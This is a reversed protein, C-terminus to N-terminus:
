AGTFTSHYGVPYASPHQVGFQLPETVPVVFLAFLAAGALLCLNVVAFVALLLTFVASSGPASSLPSESHRVPYLPHFQKSWEFTPFGMTNCFSHVLMVSIVSGACWLHCLTM